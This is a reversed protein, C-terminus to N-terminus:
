VFSFTCPFYNGFLFRGEGGAGYAGILSAWKTKTSRPRLSLCPLGSGCGPFRPRRWSPLAPGAPGAHVAGRAGGGRFWLTPGVPPTRPASGDLQARCAGRRPGRRRPVMSDRECAPTRPASGYLQAWLRPGRHPAGSEPTGRGRPFDVQLSPASPLHRGPLSFLAEARAPDPVRSPAWRPGEWLGGRASPRVPPLTKRGRPWPSIGLDLRSLFPSGRLGHAGPPWNTPRSDAASPSRPPCPLVSPGTRPPLPTAARQFPQPRQPPPFGPPPQLRTPSTSPAKGPRWLSNGLAPQGLSCGGCGQPAPSRAKAGRESRLGERKKEGREGEGRGSEKLGPKDGLITTTNEM